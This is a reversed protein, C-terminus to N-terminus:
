FYVKATAGVKFGMHTVQGSAIYRGSKSVAICSVNNTHGSLCEITKTTLDEVIVTNGISYIMHQGGPHIKLGGKVKGTFSFCFYYLLPYWIYLKKVKEM